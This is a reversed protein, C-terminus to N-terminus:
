FFSYYSVYRGAKSNQLNILLAFQNIIRIKSQFVKLHYSIILSYSVYRGAKSNQLHMMSEPDRKQRQMHDLFRRTFRNAFQFNVSCGGWEFHGKRDQGAGGNQVDCGCDAVRGSSCSRGVADVIGAATIAYAFAEERSGVKIEIENVNLEFYFEEFPEFIWSKLCHSLCPLGSIM